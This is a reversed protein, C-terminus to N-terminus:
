SPALAPSCAHSTPPSPCSPSPTTRAPPIASELPQFRLHELADNGCGGVAHGNVRVIGVVVAPRFLRLDFQPPRGPVASSGADEPGRASAPHFDIDVTGHRPAPAAIRFALARTLVQRGANTIWPLLQLAPELADGILRGRHVVAHPVDVTSPAQRWRRHPRPIQRGPMLALAFDHQFCNGSTNITGIAAIM